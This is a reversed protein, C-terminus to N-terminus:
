RQAGGGRVGKRESEMLKDGEEEDRARQEVM